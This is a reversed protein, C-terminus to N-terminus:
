IKNILPRLLENSHCAVAQAVGLDLVAHAVDEAVEVLDTDGDGVRYRATWALGGGGRYLLGDLSLRM